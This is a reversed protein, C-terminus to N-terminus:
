GTRGYDELTFKIGKLRNNNIYDVLKQGEMTTIAKFLHKAYLLAEEANSNHWGTIISKIQIM